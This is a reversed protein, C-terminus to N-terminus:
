NIKKHNCKKCVNIVTTIEDGKRIQQEEEVYEHDCVVTHSSDIKPCPTLGTTMATHAVPPASVVYNSFTVVIAGDDCEINRPVHNSPLYLVNMKTFAVKHSNSVSRNKARKKLPSTAATAAAAASTSPKPQPSDTVMPEEDSDYEMASFFIVHYWEM